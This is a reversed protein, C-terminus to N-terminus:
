TSRAVPGGPRAPGLVAERVDDLSAIVDVGTAERDAVVRLAPLRERAEAILRPFSGFAVLVHPREEEIAALAEDEGVAGRALEWDASVTARKLAALSERNRAVCLVTLARCV